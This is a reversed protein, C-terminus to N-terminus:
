RCRTWFSFYDDDQLLTCFLFASNSHYDLHPTVPEPTILHGTMAVSICPLRVHQRYDDGTAAGPSWSSSYGHATVTKAYGRRYGLGSGATRLIAGTSKFLGTMTKGCIRACFTSSSICQQCPSNAPNPAFSLDLNTSQLLESFRRLPIPPAPWTALM